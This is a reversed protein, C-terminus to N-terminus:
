RPVRVASNAADSHAAEADEAARRCATAGAIGVGRATEAGLQHRPPDAQDVSAALHPEHADEGVRHQGLAALRDADDRLRQDSALQGVATEGLQADHARHVFALSRHGRQGVPEDRQGAAEAGELLRKLDEGPRLEADM